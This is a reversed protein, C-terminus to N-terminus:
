TTQMHAVVACDDSPGTVRFKPGGQLSIGDMWSKCASCAPKSVGIGTFPPVSVWNVDETGGSTGRSWEGRTGGVMSGTHVANEAGGAEWGMSALYGVLSRECHIQSNVNANGLGSSQEGTEALGRVEEAMTVDPCDSPIVIKCAVGSSQLEPSIEHPKPVIDVSVDCQLAFRLRRSKAFTFLTHLHRYQSTLRELTHALPFPAISGQVECVMDECIAGDRLLGVVRGTAAHLYMKARRWDRDALSQKACLAHARDLGALAGVLSKPFDHQGRGRVGCLARAFNKLRPGWKKWGKQHRASTFLYVERFIDLEIRSSAPDQVCPRSDSAAGPRSQNGTGSRAAARAGSLERLGGWVGSLDPILSDTVDSTDAITLHVRRKRAQLQVALAIHQASPKSICISALADQLPYDSRNVKRQNRSPDAVETTRDQGRLKCDQYDSVKKYGM